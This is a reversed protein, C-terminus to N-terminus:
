SFLVNRARAPARATRAEPACRHPPSATLGCDLLRTNGAMPNARVQGHIPVGGYVCAASLGVLPAYQKAVVFIQNALERTPALCLARPAAGAAVTDGSTSLRHFVPLLFALTKGSGTKAM